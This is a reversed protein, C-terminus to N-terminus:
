DRLATLIEGAREIPLSFHGEGEIFKARVRPLADAMRRGHSVPVTADDEGHWLHVDLSIDGLEFGWPQAYLVFDRLVGRTGSRLGEILSDRLWQRVDPRNIVRRDSPPAGGNLLVGLVGPQWRIARGVIGGYIINLWFRSRQALGFGLRSPWAMARLTEAEYVPGLGCVVGVATVKEPLARACTLAYPGGGSVGLVAFNDFGLQHALEAVDDAWGLLTRSPHFDSGGYGPRDIAVIRVATRLAADAMLRGELRSAPFGHCYILPKGRPDGFEAYCLGRGDRLRIHRSHDTSVPRM